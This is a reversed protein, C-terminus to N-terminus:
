FTGFVRRNSLPRAVKTQGLQASRERVEENSLGYQAVLDEATRRHSVAASVDGQAMAVNESAVYFAALETLRERTGNQPKPTTSAEAVRTQGAEEAAALHQMLEPLGKAALNYRGALVDAQGAHWRAEQVNKEALFASALSVHQEMLEKLMDDTTAVMAPKGMAAISEEMNGLSTTSLGHKAIVEHARDRFTLARELSRLRAQEGRDLVTDVLKGYRAIVEELLKAAHSNGPELALAREIYTVANDAAPTTLRNAAMAQEAKVILQEVGQGNGTAGAPMVLVNLLLALPVGFLNIKRGCGRVSDNTFSVKDLM